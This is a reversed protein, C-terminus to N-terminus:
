NSIWLFNASEDSLSENRHNWYFLSERRDDVDDYNYNNCFLIYSFLDLFLSGDYYNMMWYVSFHSLALCFRVDQEMWLPLLIELRDGDSHTIICSNYDMNFHFFVWSVRYMCVCFFRSYGMFFYLKKCQFFYLKAIQDDIHLKKEM